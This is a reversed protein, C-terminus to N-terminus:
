SYLFFGIPAPDRPVLSWLINRHMKAALGSDASLDGLFFYSRGARAAPAVGGARADESKACVNWMDSM